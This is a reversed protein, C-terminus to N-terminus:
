EQRTSKTHNPPESVSNKDGYPKSSLAIALRRLLAEREDDKANELFPKARM